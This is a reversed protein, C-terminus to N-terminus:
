PSAGPLADAFSGCEWRGVALWLGGLLAKLKWMRGMPLLLAASQEEEGAGWRIRVGRYIVSKLLRCPIPFPFLLAFSVARGSGCLQLQEGVHLAYSPACPFLIEHKTHLPLCLLQSREHQKSHSVPSKESGSHFHAWNGCDPSPPSICKTGM